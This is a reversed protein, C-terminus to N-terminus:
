IYDHTEPIFERYLGWPLYGCLGMRTLWGLVLDLL